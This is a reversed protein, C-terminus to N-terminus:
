RVSGDVWMRRLYSIAPPLAQVDHRATFRLGYEPPARWSVSAEYVAANKIDILYVDHAIPESGSLKIKAGTESLDRITCACSMAGNGYVLKGAILMRRRAATRKDDTMVIQDNM